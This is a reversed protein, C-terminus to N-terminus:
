QYEILLEATQNTGIGWGLSPVCGGLWEQMGCALCPAASFAIGGFPHNEKLLHASTYIDMVSDTRVGIKGAQAAEALDKIRM